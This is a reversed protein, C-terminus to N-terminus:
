HKKLKLTKIDNNQLIDSRIQKYFKLPNIGKPNLIINDQEFKNCMNIPIKVQGDSLEKNIDVYIRYDANPNDYAVLYDSSGHEINLERNIKYTGLCIFTKKNMNEYKEKLDNM